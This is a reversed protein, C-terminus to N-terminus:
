FTIVGVGAAYPELPKLFQALLAAPDLFLPNAQGTRAGYRPHRPFVATTIEEPAKFAFRFGSPVQSFLGKWFLVSPFQYFAFDGSVTQFIEAYEALCERQFRAKSFQGLRSYRESQYVSGLWGEYKWSSSGIYLHAKALEHLRAALQRKLPMEKPAFLSLHEYL